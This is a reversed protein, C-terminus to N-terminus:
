VPSYDWKNPIECNKANYFINEAKNTPGILFNQQKTLLANTSLNKKKKKGGTHKANFLYNKIKEPPTVGASLSVLDM